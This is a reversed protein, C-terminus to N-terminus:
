EAPVEDAVALGEVFRVVRQAEKETLIEPLTLLARVGPRLALQYEILASHHPVYGGTERKPQPPDAPAPVAAGTPKKSSNKNQRTSGKPKWDSSGSLWLRYAEIAVRTRSKYANMSNTAYATRKLVEFRHLHAELDFDAVNVNQWDPEIELVKTSAVRWNHVTAALLEGRGEAWDLFHMFHAATGHTLEGNPADAETM